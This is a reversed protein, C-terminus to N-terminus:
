LRLESEVEIRQHGPGTCVRNSRVPELEGSYPSVKSAAGIGLSLHWRKRSLLAKTCERRESIVSFSPTTKANCLQTDRGQRSHVRCCGQYLICYCRWRRPMHPRSGGTGAVWCHYSQHLPSVHSRSLRQDEASGSESVHCTPCRSTPTDNTEPRETACLCLSQRPICFLVVLRRQTLKRRRLAQTGTQLDPTDALM